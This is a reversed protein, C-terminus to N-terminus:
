GGLRKTLVAVVVVVINNHENLRTDRFGPTAITCAWTCRTILLSSLSRYIACGCLPAFETADLIPPIFLSFVAYFVLFFVVYSTVFYYTKFTRVTKIPRRRVFISFVM